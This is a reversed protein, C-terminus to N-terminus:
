NRGEYLRLHGQVMREVTFVEKVRNRGREGWSKARKPDGLLDIIKEAM